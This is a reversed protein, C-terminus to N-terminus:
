MEDAREGGFFEYGYVEGYFVHESFCYKGIFSVCNFGDAM